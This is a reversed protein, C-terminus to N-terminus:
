LYRQSNFQELIPNVRAVTKEYDKVAKAILVKLREFRAKTKKSFDSGYAIKRYEERYDNVKRFCSMAENSAEQAQEKTIRETTM